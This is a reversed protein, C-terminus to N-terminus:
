DPAHLGEREGERQGQLKGGVWWELLYNVLDGLQGAGTVLYDSWRLARAQHTPLTLKPGIFFTATVSGGAAAHLPVCITTHAPHVAEAAAAPIAPPSCLPAVLRESM